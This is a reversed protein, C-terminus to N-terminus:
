RLKELLAERQVPDRIERALETAEERHSRRVGPSELFGLLLQDDPHEAHLDRLLAAAAEFNERSGASKGLAEGTVRNAAEPAEAQLFSRLRAVDEAGPARQEWNMREFQRLSSSRVIASRESESANIADAFEIVGEYGNQQVINRAAHGLVGARQEEPLSDRVLRAYAPANERKNLQFRHGQNLIHIRQDEPLALLRETALASDQYALAGVAAAEFERRTDSEGDLSRSEFTGQALARDLWAIAAAPEKKMWKAFSNSFKGRQKDLSLYPSDLALELSARPDHESLVDVFQGLLERKLEDSADLTGARAILDSLEGPTAELLLSRLRIMAKLDPSRGSRATRLSEAIEDLDLEGLSEARAPSSASGGAHSRGPSKASTMSGDSQDRPVPTSPSSEAESIRTELATNAKNISFVSAQRFVLFGVCCVITVLPIAKM